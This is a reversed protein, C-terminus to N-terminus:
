LQPTQLQVQSSKAYSVTASIYSQLMEQFKLTLM